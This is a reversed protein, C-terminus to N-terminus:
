KKHAVGDTANQSLLRFVNLCWLKFVLSFSFPYCSTLLLIQSLINHEKHLLLKPFHNWRTMFYRLSSLFFPQGRGDNDPADHPAMHRRRPAITLSRGQMCFLAAAVELAMTQVWQINLVVPDCITSPLWSLLLPNFHFALLKDVVM